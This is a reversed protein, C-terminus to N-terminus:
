VAAVTDSCGVSAFASIQADFQKTKECVRLLHHIEERSFQM